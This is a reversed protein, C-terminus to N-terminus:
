QKNKKRKKLSRNNLLWYLSVTAIAILFHVLLTIPQANEEWLFVPGRYTVFFLDLASVHLWIIAFLLKLRHRILFAKSFLNLRYVM